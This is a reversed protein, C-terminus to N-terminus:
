YGLIFVFIFYIIFLFIGVWVDVRDNLLGFGVGGEMRIISM